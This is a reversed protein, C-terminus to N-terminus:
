AHDKRYRCGHPSRAFDPVKANRSKRKQRNYGRDNIGTMGYCKLRRRSAVSRRSPPSTPGRQHASPHSLFYNQSKRLLGVLWARIFQRLARLFIDVLDHACWVLLSQADAFCLPYLDPVDDPLLATHKRYIDSRCRRALERDDLGCLAAAIQVLERDHLD